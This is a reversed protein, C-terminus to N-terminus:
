FQEATDISVVVGAEDPGFRDSAGVASAFLLRAQETHARRVAAALAPELHDTLLEWEEIPVRYARTGDVTVYDGLREFRGHHGLLECHLTVLATALPETDVAADEAVREVARGVSAEMTDPLQDTAM